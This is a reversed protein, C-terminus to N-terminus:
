DWGGYRAQAYTEPDFDYGLEQRHIENRGYPLRAERLEEPNNLVLRCVACEFAEPFMEIMWGAVFAEPPLQDDIPVVEQIDPEVEVRGFLRGTYGCEPCEQEVGQLDMGFDQPSIYEADHQKNEAWEEFADELREEVAALERAARVRRAAVRHGVETRKEDLLGSASRDHEGYFESEDIDLVEILKRVIALSDLLVQRSPTSSGVHMAGNRIGVMRKRAKDDIPFESLLQILRELVGALGITKLRPDDLDPKTTLAFLSNEADRSLPVLLAPSTRWLVAKGLHEVALPALAAVKKYDEESWAELAEQMWASASGILTREGRRTPADDTGKRNWPPTWNKPGEAM